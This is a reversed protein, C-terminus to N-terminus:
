GDEADKTLPANLLWDVYSRIGHTFYSTNSFRESAFSTVTQRLNSSIRVFGSGSTMEGVVKLPFEHVRSLRVATDAAGKPVTCVLEWNGWALALRIPEIKLREAVEIAPEEPVLSDLDLIADLGNVHALKALSTGIGDSADMCSSIIGSEALIQAERIRPVPRYLAQKLKAASSKSLAIRETALRELVAAWFLGMNGVVCIKDGANAGFRRLILDARVSALATGTATFEPGDKVNGGLIPCQWEDAAEALGDLFRRYDKVTMNNPMVTSVLIGIPKGGMAALDSVNVLMTMRGYHSFDNDEIEFVLPTPCPDTTALLVHGAPPLQIEACDDGIDGVGGKSAALRTLILDTLITQEGLAGLKESPRLKAGHRITRARSPDAQRSVTAGEAGASEAITSGLGSLVLDAAPLVASLTRHYMLKNSPSGLANQWLLGNHATTKATMLRMFQCPLGSPPFIWHNDRRRVLFYSDNNKYRRMTDAFRGPTGHMDRRALEELIDDEDPLCHWHAHDICSGAEHPRVAGHEIFIADRSFAAQMTSHIQSIHRELQPVLDHPIAGMALYHRTPLLLVHGPRIPAVDPIVLFQDDGWLAAAAGPLQATRNTAFRWPFCFECRTSKRTPNPDIHQRQLLLINPNTPGSLSSKGLENLTVGIQSIVQRAIM